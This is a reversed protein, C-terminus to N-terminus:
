TPRLDPLSALELIVISPPGPAAEGHSGGCVARRDRHDVQEAPEEEDRRGAGDMVQGQLLDPAGDALSAVLTM